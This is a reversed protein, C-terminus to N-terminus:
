WSWTTQGVEKKKNTEMSDLICFFYFFFLVYFIDKWFGFVIPPQSKVAIKILYAKVLEKYSFWRKVETPIAVSKGM